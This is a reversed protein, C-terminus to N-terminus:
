HLRVALGRTPDAWDESQWKVKSRVWAAICTWRLDWCQGSFAPLAESVLASLQTWKTEGSSEGSNLRFSDHPIWSATDINVSWSSLTVLKKKQKNSHWCKLSIFPIKCLPSTELFSPSKLPIKGNKPFTMKRSQSSVKPWPKNQQWATIVKLGQDQERM